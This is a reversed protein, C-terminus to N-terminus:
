EGKVCALVAKAFGVPQTMSGTSVSLYGEAVVAAHIVYRTGTKRVLHRDDIRAYL